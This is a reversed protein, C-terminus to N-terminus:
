FALRLETFITSNKQLFQFFSPTMGQFYDFGIVIKWRDNLAYAGKGRIAWNFRPVYFIGSLDAELTENLWKDALRFTGGQQVRDAQNNIIAQTIALERATPDPVDFPSQYNTVVRLLYQANVNLYEGFTRDIGLVAFFFPKKTELDQGAWDETFTFAAEGRLGFRGANAAFDGGAVRIRHHRLLVDTETPSVTVAGLDPLRDYGDFYSLSWDVSGGTQEIKAAGQGLSDVAGPLPEVTVLPPPLAPIPVIDPFFGPLWWAALSVSGLYYRGRAAYTGSRQDADDPVLLTMDRPSINDTPNIGDARGWVVIQKGLRFDVPGLSLDLYLERLLGQPADSRLLDENRVWGEVTISAKPGLRPTARMWLALTVFNRQDHLRRNASWYGARLSGSAEGGAGAAAAGGPELGDESPLETAAQSSPAPASAQGGDMGLTPTASTVDSATLGGDAFLVSDGPVPAPPALGGESRAEGADVVLAGGEPLSPQVTGATPERFGGDDSTYPSSPESGLAVRAALGIAGVTVAAAFRRDNM